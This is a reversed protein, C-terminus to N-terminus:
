HMFPQYMARKKYQCHPTLPFINATDKNELVAQETSSEFKAALEM